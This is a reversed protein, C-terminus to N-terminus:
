FDFANKVQNIKESEVMHIYKMTTKIDSHALLDQLVEVKGGRELFITGFTHRAIHNTLPITLGSEEAIAKLYENQRQDSIKYFIGNGPVDNILEEAISNLPIRVEKNQRKTKQAVYSLINEKINSKTVFKTDSVRMGTVCMLLFNRLVGLKTAFVEDKGSQYIGNRYFDLLKLFENKSLFQRQTHIKNLKFGQCPNHDIFGKTHAINVYSAIKKIHNNATNEATPANDRGNKKRYIDKIIHRRFNSLWEHNINVIEFPQTKVFEKLRKVVSKTHRYTGDSIEGSNYREQAQKSMFTIFCTSNIKSAYREKFTYTTKPVGNVEMSILINLVRNRELELQTNLQHAELTNGKFRQNKSDWLKVPSKIGTTIRVRQGHIIISLFIAGKDSTNTNKDFKKLYFSYSCWNMALEEKGPSLYTVSKRM